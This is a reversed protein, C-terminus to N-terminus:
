FISSVLIYVYEIVEQSSFLLVSFYSRLSISVWILCEQFTGERRYKKKLFILLHLASSQWEVPQAVICSISHFCCYYAHVLNAKETLQPMCVILWCDGCVKLLRSFCTSFVCELALMRLLWTFSSEGWVVPVVLLIPPFCKKNTWHIIFVLTATLSLACASQHYSSISVAINCKVKRLSHMYGAWCPM